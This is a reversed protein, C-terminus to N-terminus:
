PQVKRKLYLVKGGESWYKTLGSQSAVWGPEKTDILPMPEWEPNARLFDNAESLPVSRIQYPAHKIEPILKAILADCQSTICAWFCSNNLEGDFTCEDVCNVAREMPVTAREERPPCEKIPYHPGRYPGYILGPPILLKCAGQCEVSDGCNKLCQYYADWHGDRDGAWVEGTLLVCIVCIVVLLLRKM